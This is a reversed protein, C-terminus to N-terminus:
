RRYLSRTWWPWKKTLSSRGHCVHPKHPLQCIVRRDVNPVIPDRPTCALSEVGPAPISVVVNFSEGDAKVAPIIVLEALTHPFGVTAPLHRM